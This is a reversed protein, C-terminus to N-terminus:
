DSASVDSKEIWRYYFTLFAAGVMSLTTIAAFTTVASNIWFRIFETEAVTYYAPVEGDAILRERLDIYNYYNVFVGLGAIALWVYATAFVLFAFLRLLLGAHRLFYYLGALYAAVITFMASAVIATAEQLLTVNDILATELASM